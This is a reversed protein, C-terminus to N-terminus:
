EESRLREDVLTVTVDLGRHGVVEGRTHGVLVGRLLCAPVAHGGLHPRDHPRQPGRELAVVGGRLVGQLLGLGRDVRDASGIVAHRMVGSPTSRTRSPTLATACVSLGATSPSGTFASAAIAPVPSQGIMASASAPKKSCWRGVSSAIPLRMVADILPAPAAVVAYTWPSRCIACCCWCAAAATAPVPSTRWPPPPYWIRHTTDVRRRDRAAVEVGVRDLGSGVLERAAAHLDPLDPGVHDPLPARERVVVLRGLSRAQEGRHVRDLRARPLEAVVDLLDSAGQARVGLLDSRDL